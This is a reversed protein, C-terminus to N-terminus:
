NALTENFTKFDEAVKKPEEVMPVHGIDELFLVSANPLLQDLVEAGSPDLVRDRRGWVIRTPVTLNEAIDELALAEAAVEQYIRNHLTFNEAAREILIEKVPRPIFPPKNMTFHLLWDFERLDRGFIPIRHGQQLLRHMESPRASYVGAPALLWLSKIQRRNEAAYAASIKGPP